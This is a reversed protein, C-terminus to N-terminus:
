YALLEVIKGLSGFNANVSTASCDTSEDDTGKDEEADLL